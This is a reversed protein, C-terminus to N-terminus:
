GDYLGYKDANDNFWVNLLQLIRQGTPSLCLRDNPLSALLVKADKEKIQIGEVHENQFGVVLDPVSCEIRVESNVLCIDQM